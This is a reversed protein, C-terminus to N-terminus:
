RRLRVQAVISGETPPGSANEFALTGSLEVTLLESTGVGSLDFPLIQPDDDESTNWFTVENTGSFSILTGDPNMPDPGEGTYLTVEDGVERNAVVSNIRARLDGDIRVYGVARAPDPDSPLTDFDYFEISADVSSNILVIESGLRQRVVDDVWIKAIGSTFCSRAGPSCDASFVVGDPNQARAPAGAPGPPAPTISGGGLPTVDAIDGVPIVDNLLVAAVPGIENVHATLIGNSIDYSTVDTLLAGGPQMLAVALSLEDGAELLASPVGIQVRAPVNLATGAPGVDFATEPIVIGADGPFATLRKQATVIESGTLSGDPFQISFTPPVSVTGGTANVTVTQGATPDLGFPLEQDSQQCGYLTTVLAGVL